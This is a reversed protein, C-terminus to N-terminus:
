QLPRILAQGQRGARKAAARARLEEVYANFEAETVLEAEDNPFFVYRALSPHPDEFTDRIEKYVLVRAGGHETSVVKVARDFILCYRPLDLAM